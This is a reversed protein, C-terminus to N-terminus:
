LYRHLNRQNQKAVHARMRRQRQDRQKEVREKQTVYRHLDRQDKQNESERETDTHAPAWWILM